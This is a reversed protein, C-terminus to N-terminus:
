PDAAFFTELDLDVLKQTPVMLEKILNYVDMMSELPELELGFVVM